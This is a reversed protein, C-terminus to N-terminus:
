APPINKTTRHEALFAAVEDPDFLYQEREFDYARSVPYRTILGKKVFHYLTPRKIGFRKIIERAPVKEAMVPNYCLMMNDNYVM